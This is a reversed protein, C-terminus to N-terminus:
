AAKVPSALAARADELAERAERYAVYHNMLGPYSSASREDLSELIWGLQRADTAKIAAHLDRLRSVDGLYDRELRAFCRKFFVTLLSPWLARGLWSQQENLLKRNLEFAIDRKDRAQGLYAPFRALFWKKFARAARGMRRAASYCRWNKFWSGARKGAFSGAIAGVIALAPTIIPVIPLAVGTMLSAGALGVAIGAKSGAAGGAAGLSDLLAHELGVALRKKGQLVGLLHILANEALVEAAVLSTPPSVTGGVLAKAKEEDTLPLPATSAQTDARAADPALRSFAMDLVPSGRPALAAPHHKRYLEEFLPGDLRREHSRVRRARLLAYLAFAGACALGATVPPALWSSFLDDGIM